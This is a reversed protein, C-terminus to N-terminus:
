SKHNFCIIFHNLVELTEGFCEHWMFFKGMGVLNSNIHYVLVSFCM